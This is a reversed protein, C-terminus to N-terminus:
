VPSTVDVAGVVEEVAGVVVAGPGLQGTTLSTLSGGPPWPKSKVLVVSVGAVNVRVGVPVPAAPASSRSNLRVRDATSIGEVYDPPGGVREVLDATLRPVLGTAGDRLTTGAASGPLRLRQLM